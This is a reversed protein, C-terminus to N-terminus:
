VTWLTAVFVGFCSLVRVCMWCTHVSSWQRLTERFVLMFLDGGDHLKCQVTSILCYVLWCFIFHVSWLQKLARVDPLPHLGREVSLDQFAERPQLWRLGVAPMLEPFQGWTPLPKARRWRLFQSFAWTTNKLSLDPDVVPSYGANLFLFFFFLFFSVLTVPWFLSLSFILLDFHM